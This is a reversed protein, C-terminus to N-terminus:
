GAQVFVPLVPLAKDAIEDPLLRPPIRARSARQDDIDRLRGRHLRRDRMCRGPGSRLLAMEGGVTWESIYRLDRFLRAQRGRSAVPERCVSTVSM